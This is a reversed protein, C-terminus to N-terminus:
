VRESLTRYLVGCEKGQAEREAIKARIDSTSLASTESYRRSYTKRGPRPPDIHHTSARENSREALVRYAVGCPKREPERKAIMSQLESTTMENTEEYRQLYTKPDSTGRKSSRPSVDSEKRGFLLHVFRKLFMTRVEKSTKLTCIQNLM